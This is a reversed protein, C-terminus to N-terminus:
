QGLHLESFRAGECVFAIRTPGTYAASKWHGLVTVTNGDRSTSEPSLRGKAGLFELASWAAIAAHGVFRRGDDVVVGNQNDFFRLMATIDGRNVVQIFRKVSDPLGLPEQTPDLLHLACSGPGSPYAQLLAMHDPHVLAAEYATASDWKAYDIFVDSGNRGRVLERSVFGPQQLLFPEEGYWARLLQAEDQPRIHFLAVFVVPGTQDGEIQQTIDIGPSLALMDM